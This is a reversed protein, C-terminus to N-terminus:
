RAKARAEEAAATLMEQVTGLSLDELRKFRICGQGCNTKGLRPKFRGIDIGCVYLALYHKQAAISFVGEKLEYYPMGYRMSEKADPAVEKILKRLKALAQRREAPLGKLYAAVTKADSQM